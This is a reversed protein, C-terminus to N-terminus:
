GLVDPWRDIVKRQTDQSAEVVTPFENRLIKRFPKVAFIIGRSSTYELIDKDPQLVAIPDLPTGLTDPIIDIGTAPDSRSCMAWTVESLNTPDIDEDVVVVYRGSVAGPRCQCAVHGAMKAHGGYMQKISVTTFARSYGEEHCWVGRVNPVGARELVDWILAARVPCRFYSYDYPPKGACAGLLIPDNRHYVAEVKVTPTKLMGSAYYGMFEGLPGEDRKEPLIYGEIAIESDAPIPLGTVPGRIVEYPSKSIAGLYNYESIGEPIELGSLLYLSPHHGFSVAVPCPKGADHYKQVQFRAHRSAEMLICLTNKNSVMMRYTGVNVWDKEPDRTMVADATGIYRGGDREFWMPVPFKLLDVKEGRDVNQMVPSDSVFQPAYSSAEAPATALKERLTKVLELNNLKSSFGLSLGVRKSDLVAGTLVRFGKPYGKIEDFILTYKHKKANLDTTAGIELNWDANNVQRLLGLSKIEDIWTRLDRKM